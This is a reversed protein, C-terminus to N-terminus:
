WKGKPAKKLNVCEFHFWEIFCAENDCEVMPGYSVKNCVCYTPEDSPNEKDTEPASSYCLQDESTKAKPKRKRKIARKTVPVKALSERRRKPTKPNEKEECKQVTLAADVLLMLNNKEASDEAHKGNLKALEIEMLVKKSKRGRKGKVKAPPQEQEKAVPDQPTEKESVPDEPTKEEKSWDPDVKLHEFNFDELKKTVFQNLELAYELKQGNLTQVEKLRGSVRRFGVKDKVAKDVLSGINHLLRAM